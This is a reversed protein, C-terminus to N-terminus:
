ISLADGYSKEFSLEFAERENWIVRFEYDLERKLELSFDKDEDQM